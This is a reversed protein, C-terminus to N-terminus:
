RGSERNDGLEEWRGQRMLQLTQLVDGPAVVRGKPDIFAPQRNWRVARGTIELARDMLAAVEVRFAEIADHQETAATDWRNREAQETRTTM